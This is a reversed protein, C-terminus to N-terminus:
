RNRHRREKLDIVVVSINDGSGRGMALKTLLAAAAGVPTDETIGKSRHPRYGALCKRAVECASDNSLVDWLGDSALILCEDEHTRDTCTVEPESIVYRKLFRDGLARSMALFGGVRYGNWFIVRGGAAEIRGMEDEREPKHDNSLPIAKGGRSLVARSDGCNAIVLQSPSVVAIVATSGVNEPAVPDQCCNSIMKVDGTSCGGNPCMGGVAMDMKMFCASMVKRWDNLDRSFSSADRLEEALAEHFRNKCFISAQSGGHGDYVGFFHLPIPAPAAFGSLGSHAMTNTKPLSSFSPVASVADEMERRRGIISMTGHAPCPDKLLLSISESNARPLAVGKSPRSLPVGEQQKPDAVAVSSSSCTATAPTLASAPGKEGSNKDEDNVAVVATKDLQMECVPKNVAMEEKSDHVMPEADSTVATTNNTSSSGIAISSSNKNKINAIANSDKACFKDFNCTCYSRGKWAIPTSVSRVLRRAPYLAQSHVEIELTDNATSAAEEGFCVSCLHANNRTRYRKKVIDSFSGSSSLTKLRRIEAVRRRSPMGTTSEEVFSSSDPAAIAEM